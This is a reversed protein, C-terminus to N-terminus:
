EVLFVLNAREGNSLLQLQYWGNALMGVAWCVNPSLRGERLLQGQANFLRWQGQTFRNAEDLLCIRDSAPNPFLLLGDQGAVEKASTPELFLGQTSSRACNPNSANLTVEYFGPQAYTHVPSEASSTNGDDFNWIYSSAQTSLNTFSVTLGDVSYSFDSFPPAYVTVLDEEVTELTGFPSFVLLRVTYTGPQDYVVTPNEDTSFGPNGGPLEWRLSDYFGTTSNNLLLTKPACGASSGQLSIDPIPPNGITVSQALTDNGCANSTVLQVTYNGPLSYTYAPAFANSTGGDGFDWSFSEGTSFNTINLNFGDVAAQFDAQPLALVQITDTLLLTDTSTGNAARLQISYQGPNTYTVIPNEENSTAPTGGEFIWTISEANVSNNAFQVQLPACGEAPSFSAAAQPPLEITIAQSTTVTDGCLPNFAALVVTYTGAAGYTHSPSEATATNGDGFSWFFSQAQGLQEFAVTLNNVTYNFDATPAEITPNTSYPYFLSLDTSGSQGAEAGNTGDPCEASDFTIGPAGGSVDVTQDPGFAGFVKGGAGGGGPGFCQEANNNDADGGQGGRAEVLLGDGYAFGEAYVV